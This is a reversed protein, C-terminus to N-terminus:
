RRDPGCVVANQGPLGDAQRCYDGSAGVNQKMTRLGRCKGEPGRGGHVRIAGAPAGLYERDAPREGPGCTALRVTDLRGGSAHAAWVVVAEPVIEARAMESAPIPPCVSVKPAAALM